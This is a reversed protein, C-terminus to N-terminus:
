YILVNRKFPKGRHPSLSLVYISIKKKELGIICLVRSYLLSFESKRNRGNGKEKGTGSRWELVCEM